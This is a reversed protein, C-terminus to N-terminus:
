ICLFFFLNSVMNRFFNCEARALTAWHISCQGTFWLTVPKIGLWPVPRPKPGPGWHPAHLLCGCMSTEKGRKRGEKKYFYIVFYIFYKKFFKFESKLNQGLHLCLYVHKRVCGYSPDSNNWFVSKQGLHLCLNICKAEKCLWFFCLLLNLLLFYGSNGSYQVTHFDLLWPTLSSINKWVLLLPLSPCSPHLPSMALHHSASWALCHSASCTTGYTCAALSYPVVSSHSLGPLGPNWLRSIFGWVRQSFFGTPTSTAPSVGLRVTSNIPSVWLTRSCVCFWGGLFWCWFPGIQKALSVRIESAHTFTWKM